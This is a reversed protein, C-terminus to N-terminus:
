GPDNPYVVNDELDPNNLVFLKREKQLEELDKEVGIYADKIDLWVTGEPTRRVHGLLDGKERVNTLQSKYLYRGDPLVETRQSRSLAQWLERDGPEFKTKECLEAISLPARVDLLVTTADKLRKSLPVLTRKLKSQYSEAPRPEPKLLPSQTKQPPKVQDSPTKPLVSQKVPRSRAKVPKKKADPPGKVSETTRKKLKSLESELNSQQM